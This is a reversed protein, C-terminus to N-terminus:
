HTILEKMSANIMERIRSHRVDELRPDARIIDFAAQRAREMLRIDEPLRALRFEPLGHQRAGFLEGPGRLVLDEEALRFGNNTETMLKLRKIAYEDDTDTMLICYSRLDGRGVRGRLQHLQALGFRESNEVVMVTAAPVNVGVEVVTTSVLAKVEGDIFAKMGAEKQEASMRGHVLGVKYPRLRLRMLQYIEQANELDMLESEEILPCVIFAQCGKRLEKLLFLIMKERAKELVCITQVPIRGPPSEDIISIDLDGYLTLALTRPIPTASMILTDPHDGKGRLMARQRVGFRHQEDIVALSLRKYEMGEQFLAHTGVAVHISGNALEERSRRRDGASLGGLFLGCKVGLPEFWRSLTQYHQRALIETPAMIAAQCGNEVALLMAWAAVATKGSGVDGQALRAMAYPKGMDEKIEGIVRKQAGTLKFPLGAVWKDTLSGNHIHVYGEERIDKDRMMALSLQLFFFEDFIVRERAKELEDWSKPRHIAEMAGWRRALSHKILFAEDHYEEIAIGSDLIQAIAQRFLKQRLEASAPYVALIKGPDDDSENEDYPEMDQILIEAHGFRRQVRGTMIFMAGATLKAKVYPQNFWIAAAEGSDDRIGAKLIYLGARPRNETVSVISAIFTATEGHVLERLCFLRTRDEYRRPYHALLDAASVIGMRELAKQRKPGIGKLYQLEM